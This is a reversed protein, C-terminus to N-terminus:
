YGVFTEKKIKETPIALKEVLLDEMADVFAPPGTIYYTASDWYTVNKITEESISGSKLAETQEEEILDKLIMQVNINQQAFGIGILENYYATGEPTRNAYLLTVNRQQRNQLVSRLMSRFPTIGIGGTIMIISEEEDESLVLNGMPGNMEVVDGISLRTLSEKYESERIRTAFSIEADSPSDTISFFHSIKKEPERCSSITFKAFQGPKFSFGEPKELSFSTIGEAIDEKGVLKTEYLMNYKKSKEIIRAKEGVYIDKIIYFM